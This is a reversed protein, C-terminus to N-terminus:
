IACRDAFYWCRITNNHLVYAACGINFINNKLSKNLFLFVNKTGKRNSGGFNTNFDDGSFAIIKNSWKYKNLIEITYNTLINASKGKLNTIKIQM